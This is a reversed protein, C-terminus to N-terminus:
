SYQLLFYLFFFFFVICKLGPLAPYGWVAGAEPWAPEPDSSHGPSVEGEARPNVENEPLGQPEIKGDWAEQLVWLTKGESTVKLCGVKIDGPLHTGPDEM